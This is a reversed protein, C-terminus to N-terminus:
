FSWLQVGSEGEAGTRAETNEMEAFSEVYYSFRNKWM